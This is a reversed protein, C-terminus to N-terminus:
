ATTAVDGVVENERKPGISILPDVLSRRHARGGLWTELLLVVLASVILWRWLKQRNELETNNLRISRERAVSVPMVPRKLPVSLRELDEVSLPATRSEFSDINVAFRKPPEASAITYIGPVVTGSFNTEGSAVSVQNNDPTLIKVSSDRAGSAAVIPVVDGV